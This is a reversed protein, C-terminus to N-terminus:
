EPRLSDAKQDALASDVYAKFTDFGVPGPIMRSGIIFTPTGQLMRREGEEQNARINLKYRQADYCENWQQMDLGIAKADQALVSRPRDTAETNWKDQTAFIQDHMEWFKNQENACAAALSADWTNQHIALPFDLFRISIIGTQVLRKRVDPETISAFNECAPCEFDAFEIVKVPANPNGMLYGQAEPLPINPDVRVVGLSTPRKMQYVILLGAVVVIAGLLWVFAKYNSTPTIPPPAASRRARGRSKVGPERGRRGPDMRDKAM